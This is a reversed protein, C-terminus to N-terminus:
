KTKKTIKNAKDQEAGWKSIIDDTEKLLKKIRKRTERREVEEIRICRRYNGIEVIIWAYMIVACILIIFSLNKNEVVNALITLMMGNTCYWKANMIAKDSPKM